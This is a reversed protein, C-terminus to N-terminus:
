TLRLAKALSNVVPNLLCAVIYCVVAWVFWILLPYHLLIIYESFMYVALFGQSFWMLMSKHGLEVFVTKFLGNFDIHLVLWVVLAAHFPNPASTKILGRLFFSAVLLAVVILNKGQLKSWTVSKGAFTRQAIAVGMTLGFLTQAWLMIHYMEFHVHLWSILYRSILFSTGFYLLMSGILSIVIGIRDILPFIWKTTFSMLVYPLLFWTFVCFDWRYGVLNLLVTTWKYSFRGPYMVSAIGFVFVLLVLWFALYLRLTRKFLYSWTLKGNKYAYYLGYGSVILFYTIPHCATTIVGYIQGLGQIDPIKGMHYILMFLIAFGKIIASQEKSM